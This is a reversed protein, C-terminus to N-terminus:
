SHEPIVRLLTSMYIAYLAHPHNLTALQTPESSQLSIKM